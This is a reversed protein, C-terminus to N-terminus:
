PPSFSLLDTVSQGGPIGSRESLTWSSAFKRRAPNIKVSLFMFDM